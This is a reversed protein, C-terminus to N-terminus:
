VSIRPAAPITLREGDISYDNEGLTRDNLTLSVLQLDSGHLIIDRSGQADDKFQFEMEARVTTTEAGIDFHLDFRKVDWPYAKYNKRYIVDGAEGQKM